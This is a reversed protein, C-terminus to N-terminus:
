YVGARDLAKNQHLSTFHISSLIIQAEAQVDGLQRCNDWYRTKNNYSCLVQKNNYSCSLSQLQDKVLLAM